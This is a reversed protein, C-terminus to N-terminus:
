DGLAPTRTFTEAPLKGRRWARAAAKREAPPLRSIAWWAWAAALEAPATARYSAVDLDRMWTPEPMADATM